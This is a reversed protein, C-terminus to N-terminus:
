SKKKKTSYGNKEYQFWVLWSRWSCHSCHYYCSVHLRGGRPLSARWRQRRTWGKVRARCIIRMRSSSTPATILEMECILLGLSKLYKSLTTDDTLFACNARSIIFRLLCHNGAHPADRTASRWLPSTTAALHGVLPASPLILVKM